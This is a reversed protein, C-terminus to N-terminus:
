LYVAFPRCNVIKTSKEIEDCSCLPVQRVIIPIGIDDTPMYTEQGVIDDILRARLLKRKVISPIESKKRKARFWHCFARSIYLLSNNNIASYCVM